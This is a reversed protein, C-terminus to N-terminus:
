EAMARPGLCLRSFGQTLPQTQQLKENSDFTQNVYNATRFSTRCLLRSKTGRKCLRESESLVVLKGNRVILEDRFTRVYLLRFEDFVDVLLGDSCSSSNSLSSRGAFLRTTLPGVVGFRWTVLSFGPCDLRVRRPSSSLSTMVSTSSSSSSSPFAMRSDVGTFTHPRKRSLIVVLRPEM